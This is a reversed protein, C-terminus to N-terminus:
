NGAGKILAQLEKIRENTMYAKCTDILQPQMTGGVAQYGEGECEGDRYDIWARQAKKLAKLAGVYDPNIEASQKDLDQQSKVAQKYVVNLQDDAKSFDMAACENMDAQSMTNKCDIKQSDDEAYSSTHISAALLATVAALIHIRM